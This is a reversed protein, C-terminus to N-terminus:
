PCDDVSNSCCMLHQVILSPNISRQFTVTAGRGWTEAIRVLLKCPWVLSLCLFLYLSSSAASIHSRALSGFIKRQSPSSRTEPLGRLASLATNWIVAKTQPWDTRVAHFTQTRKPMCFHVLRNDVLSSTKIEPPKWSALTSKTKSTTVLQISVDRSEFQCPYSVGWSGCGRVEPKM